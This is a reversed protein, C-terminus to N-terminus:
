IHILSLQSLLVHDVRCDPFSPAKKVNCGDVNLVPANSFYPHSDVELFTDRLALKMKAYAPYTPRLNTDGAFILPFKFERFKEIVLDVSPDKNVARNDFHTGSFIFRLQDSRDELVVWELRRPFTTAWGFSFGPAKPGLWIGDHKIVKFRSKRVFLTPDAYGIFINSAYASVYDDGLLKELQRIDSGSWIEQISILDPNHRRITDAVGVLKEHFRGNEATTGCFDCMVNFTMVKLPGASASPPMVGLLSIAALLLNWLIM